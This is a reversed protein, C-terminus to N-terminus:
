QCAGVRRAPTAQDAVSPVPAPAVGVAAYTMLLTFLVMGGYFYEGGMGVAFAAVLAARLAKGTGDAMAWSSGAQRWMLWLIGLVLGGGVLGTELFMQLFFNHSGTWFLGSRGGRHFFGAGLIPSNILKSGEKVWIFPRAGVDIGAVEAQPYRALYDPDPWLTKDVEFRFAPFNHYAVIGLIVLGVVGVLVTRRPGFQYLLYGLGALIALWGGRGSSLTVGLVIVILVPAAARLWAAPMRREIWLGGLYCLMISIMASVPNDQYVEQFAAGAQGGGPPSFFGSGERFFLLFLGAVGGSVLLSWNFGSRVTEDSTLAKITLIGSLGYLSLKGLKLLSFLLVHSDWYHYRLNITLTSLMAWVVFGLLLPVLRDVCVPGRRPHRSAQYVLLLYPGILFDSLRLTGFLTERQLGLDPLFLLPLWYLWANKLTLKSTTILLVVGGSLAALPLVPADYRAIFVGGAGAALLGLGMMWWWRALHSKPM